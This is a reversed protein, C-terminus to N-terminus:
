EGGKEVEGVEEERSEVRIMECGSVRWDSKEAKQMM